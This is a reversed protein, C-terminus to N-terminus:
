TRARANWRRGPSSTIRVQRAGEGGCGRAGRKRATNGSTFGSAVTASRTTLGANPGAAYGDLSMGISAFITM